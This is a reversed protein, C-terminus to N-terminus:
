KSNYYQHNKVTNKTLFNPRPDIVAEAKRKLIMGADPREKKENWDDKKPPTDWKAHGKVNKM